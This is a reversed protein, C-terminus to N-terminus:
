EPPSILDSPGFGHPLLDSLPADITIDGEFSVCVVRMTPSFENLMQRCIGCPSGGNQTAIIIAEFDRVGDSVAKVLATREACISAPYSANEVNCGSYLNGEKDVLIAGVPFDSYPAYAARSAAIAKGILITLNSKM